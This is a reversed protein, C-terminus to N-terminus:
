VHAVEQAMTPASRRRATQRMLACMGDWTRDWSKGALFRDVKALWAERGGAMARELAAAMESPTAAIEVLGLDGYPRVIDRIPTAAVRLGAALYEPTKTPSIFRTAENLAFPIFGADWGALYAPLDDYSKAGLWHINARRPLSAPDIKVVPGVIVIQWRPRLAALGDILDLDTREDIVGFWGIRSHPIAAQDEPEPGSWNRAQAFHEREISSPM